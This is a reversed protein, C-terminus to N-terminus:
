IGKLFDTGNNKHTQIENVIPEFLKIDIGLDVLRQVKIGGKSTIEIFEKLKETPLKNRADRLEDSTLMVYNLVEEELYFEGVDFLSMKNLDEKTLFFWVPSIDYENRKKGNYRISKIKILKDQELEKLIRLTPKHRVSEKFAMMKSLTKLTPFCTFRGKSPRCYAILAIVLALQEAQLGIEFLKRPVPIFNKM